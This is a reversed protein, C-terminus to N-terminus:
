CGAARAEVSPWLPADAENYVVGCNVCQVLGFEVQLEVWNRAYFYTELGGYDEHEPEEALAQTLFPLVAAVPEGVVRRGFLTADPNHVEVWGFRNHNNPEISFELRLWYYQLRLAGCDTRYSKDPPGLTRVVEPETLGFHFQGIGTGPCIEM